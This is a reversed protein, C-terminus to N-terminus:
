YGTELEPEIQQLLLTLDRPQIPSALFGDTIESITANTDAINRNSTLGFVRLTKQSEKERQRIAALTELSNEGPIDLALLVMDCSRRALIAVAEKGNQAVALRHGEKGFVGMAVEQNFRSNDVLLVNLRPRPIVSRKILEHTIPPQTEVPAGGIIREMLERLENANIPKVLTNELGLERARSEDAIRMAPSLLLIPTVEKDKKKRSKTIQAAFAFTDRDPVHADLLVFRFPRKAEHAIELVDM